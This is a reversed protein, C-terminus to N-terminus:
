RLVFSIQPMLNFCDGWYRACLEPGFCLFLCFATLLYVFLNLSCLRLRGGGAHVSINSRAEVSFIHIHTYFALVNLQPVLPPQKYPKPCHKNKCFINPVYKCLYTHLSILVCVCSTSPHSRQQKNSPKRRRARERASVVWGGMWVVM